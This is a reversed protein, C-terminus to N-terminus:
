VVRCRWSPHDRGFVYAFLVPAGRGCEEACAFFGDACSINRSVKITYLQARNEEAM